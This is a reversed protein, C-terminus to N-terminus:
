SQARARLSCLPRWTTLSPVGTAFMSSNWRESNGDSEERREESFNAVRSLLTVLDALCCSERWPMTEEVGEERQETGRNPREDQEDRPNSSPADDSSVSVPHAIEFEWVNLVECRYLNPIKKRKRIQLSPEAKEERASWTEM